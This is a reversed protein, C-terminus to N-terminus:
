STVPTSSSNSVKGSIRESNAAAPIERARDHRVNRKCSSVAEQSPMGSTGCSFSAADNLRDRKPFPEIGFRGDIRHISCRTYNMQCTHIPARIVLDALAVYQKRFLKGIRDQAGRLWRLF